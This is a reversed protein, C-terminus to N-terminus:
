GEPVGMAVAAAELRARASPNTAIAAKLAASAKTPENLTMRSRILMEWRGLDSPDARLKAEVSAVMAGVMAAQESPRMASAARMQDASPGGIGPHPRPPAIAALRSATEIDNIKGVQEITRRLDAEWPAGPPTDKLLALWDGIAGKHDGSLDRQVALFYRSRPDAPDIALAKRFAALAPPPMPDRASAMVRAEGLASWLGARAPALEAARAFAHEAAAFDQRAFHAAGLADLVDVDTPNAQARKELSEVTAPTNAPGAAIAAPERDRVVAYGVAVILAGLAPILVYAAIKSSRQQM